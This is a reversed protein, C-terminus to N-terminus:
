EGGDVEDEPDCYLKVPLAIDEPAGADPTPELFSADQITEVDSLTGLASTVLCFALLLLGGVLLVDSGIRSICKRNLM